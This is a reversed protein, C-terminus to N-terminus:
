RNCTIAVAGPMSPNLVPAPQGPSQAPAASTSTTQRKKGEAKLMAAMIPSSIGADKLSTMGSISVDFATDNADIMAVIVDDTFGSKVLKIVDDNTLARKAQGFVPIALAIMLALGMVRLAGQSRASHLM